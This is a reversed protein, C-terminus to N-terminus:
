QKVVYIYSTDYKGAMILSTILKDKDPTLRRFYNNLYREFEQLSIEQNEGLEHELEYLLRRLPIQKNINVIEVVLVDMIRRRECELNLKKSLLDRGVRNNGFMDVSTFIDILEEYIGSEDIWKGVIPACKLGRGIERAEELNEITYAFYTPERDIRLFHCFEHWNLFSPMKTEYETIEDAVLYPNISYLMMIM